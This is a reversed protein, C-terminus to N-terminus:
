KGKLYLNDDFTTVWRPRLAVVMTMFMGNIVAESFFMLPLFSLYLPRLSQLQPADAFVSFAVNLAGALLIGLGGAVFANLYVYVFFNHPLHRQALQLLVQTVTIPIVASLLGVLALTHTTLGGNLWTAALAIASAVVALPWGVLLTLSTIGLLHFNLGPSVGARIHWLLMIAVSAGLFVHLSENDLLRSWPARVIAWLVVAGYALWSAWLIFAPITDAVLGM